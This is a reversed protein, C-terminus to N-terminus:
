CGSSRTRTSSAADAHRTVDSVVRYSGPASIVFTAAPDINIDITGDAAHAGSACLILVTCLVRVNWVLMRRNM